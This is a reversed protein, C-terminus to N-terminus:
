ERSMPMSVTDAVEVLATLYTVCRCLPDVVLDEDLLTSAVACRMLVWMSECSMTVSLCQNYCLHAAPLVQIARVHSIACRIELMEKNPKSILDVGIPVRNYCIFM